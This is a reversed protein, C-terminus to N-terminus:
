KKDDKEVKKYLTVQNHKVSKKARYFNYGRDLYFMSYIIPTDILIYNITPRFRKVLEEVDNLTNTALNHLRYKKLIYLYNIKICENERSNLRFTDEKLTFLGYLKDKNTLLFITNDRNINNFEEESLINEDKQYQQYQIYNKLRIKRHNIIKESM